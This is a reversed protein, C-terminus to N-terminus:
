STTRSVRLLSQFQQMLQYFYDRCECATKYPLYRTHAPPNRYKDRIDKNVVDKELFAVFENLDTNEALLSSIGRRFTQALLDGDTIGSGINRFLYEMEGLMLGAVDATGNLIRDLTSIIRGWKNVYSKKSEGTLSSRVTEYDKQIRDIGVSKVAPLLLRQNIEVEIIRYYALSLMGADKWGWDITKSLSYQTEAAELAIAGKTSLHRGVQKHAISSEDLKEKLKADVFEKVKENLHGQILEETYALLMINAIRENPDISYGKIFYDINRNVSDTFYTLADLKYLSEFGLWILKNSIFQNGGFSIKSIIGTLAGIVHMATDRLERLWDDSIIKPCENIKSLFTDFQVPKGFADSVVNLANNYRDNFLNISNNNPYHNLNRFETYIHIICEVTAEVIQVYYESGTNVSIEGLCKEFQETSESWKEETEEFCEDNLITEQLLYLLQYYFFKLTKNSNLCETLKVIDGKRAYCELLVSVAVSYDPDCKMVRSAYHITDDYEQDYFHVVAELYDSEGPDLLTQARGLIKYCVSKEKKEVAMFFRALLSRSNLNELDDDLYKINSSDVESMRIDLTFSLNGLFESILLKLFNKHKLDDQTPEWGCTRSKLKLNRYLYAFIIPFCYVDIVGLNQNNIASFKVYNRSVDVFKLIYKKYVCNRFGLYDPTITGAYKKLSVYVQDIIKKCNPISCFDEYLKSFYMIYKESSIFRKFISINSDIRRPNHLPLKLTYNLDKSLVFDLLKNINNNRLYHMQEQSPRENQALLKNLKNDFKEVAKLFHAYVYPFMYVENQKNAKVAKDIIELIDKDNLYEFETFRFDDSIVQNTVYTDHIYEKYGVYDPVDALTTCTGAYKQLGLNIEDIIKRCEPIKCYKDYIESCRAILADDSMFKAYADNNGDEESSGSLTFSESPNKKNALQAARVERAKSASKRSCKKNARRKSM